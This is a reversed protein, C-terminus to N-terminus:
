MYRVTNPVFANILSDIIQYFTVNNKKFENFLSYEPISIVYACIYIFLIMNTGKEM